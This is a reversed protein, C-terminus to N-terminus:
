QEEKNLLELFAKAANNAQEHTSPTYYMLCCAINSQWVYYYSGHRKDKRLEKKLSNIEKTFSM